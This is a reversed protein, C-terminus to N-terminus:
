TAVDRILARLWSLDQALQQRSHWVMAISASPKDAGTELLVVRGQAAAQAAMREPVRAILDSRAIIAIATQSDYVTAVRGPAHASEGEGAEVTPVISLANLAHSAASFPGSTVVTVQAASRIEAPTLRRRVLPNAPAAIWVFDEAYLPEVVFRPHLGISAGLAVDVEGRDLMPMLMDTVPIVNLTVNPAERHLRAVLRPIVEGCFYASAAVTFSRQARAPDFATGSLAQQFEALGRRIGGAIAEALATPQLAGSGRVFLPDDLTLRMRALAHSVASQTVSLSAAARTVSRHEMLADFTRLLNLDLNM